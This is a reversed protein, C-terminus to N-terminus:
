ANQKDVCKKCIFIITERTYYSSPIYEVEVDEEELDKNSIFRGCDECRPQYTKM